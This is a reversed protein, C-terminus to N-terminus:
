ESKEKEKKLLGKYVWYVAMALEEIRYQLQTLIKDDKIKTERRIIEKDIM